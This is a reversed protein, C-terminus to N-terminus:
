LWQAPWCIEVLVLCILSEILKRFVHQVQVLDNVSYAWRHDQELM